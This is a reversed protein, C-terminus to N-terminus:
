GRSEHEFTEGDDSSDPRTGPDADVLDVPQETAVFGPGNRERVVFTSGIWGHELEPDVAPPDDPVSGWDDPLDTRWQM